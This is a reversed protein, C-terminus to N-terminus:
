LMDVRKSLLGKKYNASIEVGNRNAYLKNM